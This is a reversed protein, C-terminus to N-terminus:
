QVNNCIHIHMNIICKGRSSLVIDRQNKNPWHRARQAGGPRLRWWPVGKQPRTLGRLAGAVEGFESGQCGDNATNWSIPLRPAIQSDLSHVVHAPSHHKMGQCSPCNEVGSDGALWQYNPKPDSSPVCSPLCTGNSPPKGKNKKGTIFTWTNKAGVSNKHIIVALIIQLASQFFLLLSNSCM